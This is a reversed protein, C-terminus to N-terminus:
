PGISPTSGHSAEQPLLLAGPDVLRDLSVEGALVHDEIRLLEDRVRPTRTATSALPASWDASTSAAPEAIM